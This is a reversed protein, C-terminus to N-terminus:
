RAEARFKGSQGRRGNPRKRRRGSAPAPWPYPLHRLDFRGPEAYLLPVRLDRKGSAHPMARRGRDGGGTQPNRHRRRTGRFAQGDVGPDQRRYQRCIRHGARFQHRPSDGARDACRHRRRAFSGRLPPLQGRRFLIPHHGPQRRLRDQAQSQRSRCRGIESGSPMGSLLRGFDRFGRDEEIGGGSRLCLCLRGSLASLAKRKGASRRAAGRHPAGRRALLAHRHRRDRFATRRRLDSAGRADSLNRELNQLVTAHTRERTSGGAGYTVSVFRPALPELRKIAQWLTQEMAETKPPFFEFSVKLDQSKPMFPPAPAQRINFDSM